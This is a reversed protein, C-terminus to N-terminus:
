AGARNEVASKSLIGMDLGLPCLPTICSLIFFDSVGGISIYSRWIFAGSFAPM